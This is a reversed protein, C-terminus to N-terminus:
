FDVTLTIFFLFFNLRLTVFLIFAFIKDLMGPISNLFNKLFRKKSEEKKHPSILSSLLDNKAEQNKILYFQLKHADEEELLSDIVEYINSM